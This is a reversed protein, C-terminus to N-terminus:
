ELISKYRENHFVRYSLSDQAQCLETGAQKTFIELKGMAGTYDQYCWLELNYQEIIQLYHVQHKM